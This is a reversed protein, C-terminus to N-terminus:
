YKASVSCLVPHSRLVSPNMPLVNTFLSPQFVQSMRRDAKGSANEWKPKNKNHLKAHYSKNENEQKYVLRLVGFTAGSCKTPPVRDRSKRVLPNQPKRTRSQRMYSTVQHIKDM